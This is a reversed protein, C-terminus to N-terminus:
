RDFLPPAMNYVCFVFLYLLSSRVELANALLLGAVGGGAILVKFEANDKM